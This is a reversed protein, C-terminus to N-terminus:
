LILRVKLTRPPLFRVVIQHPNPDMTPFVQFALRLFRCGFIRTGRGERSDVSISGGHAKMIERAVFLGLGSGSVETHIANKARFFKAFLNQLEAKPIGIGTDAVEIVM